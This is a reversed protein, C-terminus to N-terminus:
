CHSSRWRCLAQLTGASRDTTKKEQKADTAAAMPRMCELPDASRRGCVGVRLSAASCMDVDRRTARWRRRCRMAWPRASM